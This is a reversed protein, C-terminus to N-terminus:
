VGSAPSKVPMKSEVHGFHFEGDVERVHIQEDGLIHIYTFLMVM